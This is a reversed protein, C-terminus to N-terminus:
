AAHAAAARNPHDRLIELLLLLLGAIVVIWVFVQWTPNTWLILVLVAGVGIAVRIPIRLRQLLPGGSWGRTMGGLASRFAVAPRSPGGFWAGFAVLLAVILVIRLGDRFYRVLTDFLTGAVAPPLQNGPVRNLYLVRGLNIALGLVAMGGAVALASALLARRRRKAVAIAAALLVLGVWPLWTAAADLLRVGHRAKQLGQLQAIEITAGVTPIKQAATLGASVLQKKVAEQIPALNLVVRGDNQVHVTGKPLQGTLAEVIQSHAVRNVTVWLAPFADSQVFKTVVTNVLGDVASQLPGALASAGSPLTNRVVSAIDVHSQIQKDLVNIVVGQVGPDHAVPELTRVYRDTNLVLNRGWIAPAALTLALTGLVILLVCATARIFGSFSRRRTSM